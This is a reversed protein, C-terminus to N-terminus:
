WNQPLVCILVCLHFCKYLNVTMFPLPSNCTGWLSCFLSNLYRIQIHICHHNCTTVPLLMRKDGMRRKLFFTQCKVYPNSALFPDKMYSCEWKSDEFKVCENRLPCLSAIVQLLVLYGQFWEMQRMSSCLSLDQKGIIKDGPEKLALLTSNLTRNWDEGCTFKHVSFPPSLFEQAGLTLSIVMFHTRHCSSMVSVTRILGSYCNTKLLWKGEIFTILM